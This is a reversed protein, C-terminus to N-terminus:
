DGKEAFAIILLYLLTLIAFGIVFLKSPKNDMERKM